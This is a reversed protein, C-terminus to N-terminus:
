PQYSGYGQWPIKEEELPKGSIGLYPQENFFIIMEVNTTKDIVYRKNAIQPLEVFMGISDWYLAMRIAPAETTLDRGLRVFDPDGYKDFLEGLPIPVIPSFGM